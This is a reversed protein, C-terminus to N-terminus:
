ETKKLEYANWLRWSVGSFRVNKVNNRIASFSLPNVLYIFPLYEQALIQAQDYLERRQDEDIEQSAQVYLSDIKREWAQITRGELPSGYFANQNFTHLTGNVSWVNRVSDPEMGGGVFHLIYADWDLNRLLKTMLASFSLTQFDVDIGIAALDQKIHVAIQERIRNDSSTILSFRV